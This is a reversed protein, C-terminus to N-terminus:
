WAIGDATPLSIPLLWLLPQPGLVACINRYAGQDYASPYSTDKKSKECFELTTLAKLMLWIHFILFTTSLVLLLTAGSEGVLMLMMTFIPVDIRTSWWVTDFMTFVVIILDLVTYM